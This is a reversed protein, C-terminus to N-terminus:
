QVHVHVFHRQDGFLHYALLDALRMTEDIGTRHWITTFSDLGDASLICVVFCQM